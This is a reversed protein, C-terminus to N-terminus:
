DKLAALIENVLKEPGAIDVGWADTFVTVEDAGFRFRSLGTGPTLEDADATGRGGLEAIVELLRAATEYDERACVDIRTM